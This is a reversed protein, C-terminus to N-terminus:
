MFTIFRIEGSYLDNKAIQRFTSSSQYIDDVITKLIDDDNNFIYYYLGVNM